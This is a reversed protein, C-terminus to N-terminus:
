RSTFLLKISKPDYQTEYLRLIWSSYTQETRYSYDYYRLVERVQDM